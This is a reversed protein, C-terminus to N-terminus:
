GMIKLAPFLSRLGALVIEVAIAALLLGSVRNIIKIGVNGLIKSLRASGALILYCTVGVMFCAILLELAGQWTGVHSSYIIVISFGGPGVIIPTAMPVVAFAFQKEPPLSSHEKNLNPKVPNDEGGMMSMAIVFVLIGGAIQFAPISIGLIKLLPTGIVGAVVMCIFASVSVLRATKRQEKPTFDATKDVFYGLAILPNNLVILGTFLYLIHTIM